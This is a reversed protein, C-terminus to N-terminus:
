CRGDVRLREVPGDTAVVLSPDLLDHAAVQGVRLTGHQGRRHAHVRARGVVVEHDVAMGGRLPHRDGAAETTVPELEGAHDALHQRVEGEVAAGIM